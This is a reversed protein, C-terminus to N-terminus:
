GTSRRKSVGAKWRKKHIKEVRLIPVYKGASNNRFAELDLVLYDKSWMFGTHLRYGMFLGPRTTTGFKEGAATSKKTSPIYHVLSGFPLLRGLFDYGLRKRQPTDGDMGRRSANYQLCFCRVARSWWKKDMRAQSLLTRAGELILRNTREVVGNTQPRGPTAVRQRWKLANCALRLEDAGDTYALEVKEKPGIFQQLVAITAEETKSSTPCCEIWGTGLDKITLANADGEVSMAAPDLTVIHDFTIVEGFKTARKDCVLEEEPHRRRCQRKQSKARQCADCKPHKPIHLICHEDGPM